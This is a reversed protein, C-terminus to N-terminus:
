LYQFCPPICLESVLGLALDFASFDNEFFYCRHEVVICVDLSDIHIFIAKFFFCALIISHLIRM